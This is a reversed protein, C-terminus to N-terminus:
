ASACSSSRPTIGLKQYADVKDLPPTDITQDRRILTKTAAEMSHHTEEPTMQKSVRSVYLIRRVPV